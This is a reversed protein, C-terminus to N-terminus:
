RLEDMWQNVLIKIIYYHAKIMLKTYFNKDVDLIILLYQNLKLFNNWINLKFAIFLLKYLYFYYVIKIKSAKNYYLNNLPFKNNNYNYKNNGLSFEM